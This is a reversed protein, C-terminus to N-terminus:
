CGIVDQVWQLIAIVAVFSSVVAVIKLFRAYWEENIVLLTIYFLAVITTLTLLGDGRDFISWFSHHFDVGLLSSVYAVLLLAM